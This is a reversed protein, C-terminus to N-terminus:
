PGWYRNWASWAGSSPSAPPKGPPRCTLTEGVRGRYQHAGDAYSAHGSVFILEGARVAPLYEHAPPAPPWCLGLEALRRRAASSATM